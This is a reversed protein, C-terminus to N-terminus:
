AAEPDTLRVGNESYDRQMQDMYESLQAVTMSRTFPVDLIRIAKLKKEHSLADFLYGFVAKWDADDRMKIPRGYTLNCEAKVEAASVDGRHKAIEEFWKHLLRNQEGTRDEGKQISVRFPFTTKHMNAVVQAFDESSRVRFQM